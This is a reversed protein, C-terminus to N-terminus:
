ATTCNLRLPLCLRFGTSDLETLTGTLTTELVKSNKEEGYRMTVILDGNADFWLNFKIVM